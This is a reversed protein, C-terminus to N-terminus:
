SGVQDTEDKDEELPIVGEGKCTQCTVPDIPTTRPGGRFSYGTKGDGNCSPCIRGKGIYVADDPNVHKGCVGCCLNCLPEMSLAGECCPSAFLHMNNDEMGLFIRPSAKDLGDTTFRRGLEPFDAITDDTDRVPTGDAHELVVDLRGDKIETLEVEWKGVKVKM